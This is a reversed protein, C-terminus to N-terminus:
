SKLLYKNRILYNEFKQIGEFTGIDFIKIKKILLKVNNDRILKPITNKELSNEKKNITKLIQKNVFYIGCNILGSSIKPKEIFYVKNRKIFFNGSSNSKKKATCINLIKDLSIKKLFDKFNLNTFTDGNILLFNNELKNKAKKLVYGTGMPKKEIFTHIKIKKTKFNNILYNNLKRGKYGALFLFNNLGQKILYKLLYFLFPKKQIQIIPKPTKKTLHKLRKGYGGVLIVVQIKNLKLSHKMSM